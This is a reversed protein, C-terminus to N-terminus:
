FIEKGSDRQQIIYDYLLVIDGETLSDIREIHNLCTKNKFFLKGERMSVELSRKNNTPINLFNERKTEKQLLNLQRELEEQYCKLKGKCYNKEDNDFDDSEIAEELIRKHEIITYCSVKHERFYDTTYFSYIRSKIQEKTMMTKM